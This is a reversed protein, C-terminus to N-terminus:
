TTFVFASILKTTVAISIQTETKADRIHLNYTKEHPPEFALAHCFLGATGSYTGIDLIYRPVNTLAFTQYVAYGTQGTSKELDLRLETTVGNIM